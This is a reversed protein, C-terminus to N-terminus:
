AVGAFSPDALRGGCSALPALRSSPPEPDDGATSRGPSRASRRLPRRGAVRGSRLTSRARVRTFVRRLEVPDQRSMRPALPAASLAAARGAPTPVAGSYVRGDPHVEVRFDLGGDQSKLMDAAMTHQTAENAEPDMAQAWVLAAAARLVPMRLWGSRDRVYTAIADDRSLGRAIYPQLEREWEGADYSEALGVGEDPERV